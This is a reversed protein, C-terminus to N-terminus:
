NEGTCWHSSLRAVHDERGVRVIFRKGSFNNDNAYKDFNASRSSVFAKSMESSSLLPLNTGRPPIWRGTERRKRGRKSLLDASMKEEFPGRRVKHKSWTQLGESKFRRTFFYFILLNTCNWKRHFGNSRFLRDRTSTSNCNVELQRKQATKVHDEQFIENLYWRMWHFLNTNKM